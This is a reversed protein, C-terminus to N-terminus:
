KRRRKKVFIFDGGKDGTGHVYDYRLSHNVQRTVIDVIDAHIRTATLYDKKNNKLYNSYESAFISEDPVTELRPTLATRSKLSYYQKIEKPAREFPDKLDVFLAGGYCADTVIYIHKGNSFRIEKKLDDLNYWTWYPVVKVGEENVYNRPLGDVPIWYAAHRDKDWYGHGTYFILLNDNENLKSCYSQIKTSLKVKTPDPVVEIGGNFFYKEHLVEQLDYADSIPNKLLRVGKKQYNQAAIILAYYKITKDTGLSETIEESPNSDDFDKENGFPKISIIGNESSDNIIKGDPAKPADTGSGSNVKYGLPCRERENAGGKGGAGGIGISGNKGRSNVTLISNNATKNQQNLLPTVGSADYEIVIDGGNGGIGPNGGIGGIKGNGGRCTGFGECFAKGMGGDGGKGGYGGDGGRGGQSDIQLNGLLIFKTSIYIDVGDTGNTGAQGDQGKNGDSCRGGNAGGGGDNGNKGSIGIGIIKCNKGIESRQAYLNLEATKEIILISNDKMVFNDLDLRSQESLVHKQGTEIILEQGLVPISLFIFLISICLINKM